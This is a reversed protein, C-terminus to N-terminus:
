KIINKASAKSVVTVSEAACWYRDGDTWQIDLDIIGHVVDNGYIHVELIIGYLDDIGQLLVLDGVNYVHAM